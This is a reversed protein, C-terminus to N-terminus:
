WPQWGPGEPKPIGTPWPPAEGTALLNKFWSRKPEPLLEIAEPAVKGAKLAEALAPWDASAVPAGWPGAVAFPVAFRRENDPDRAGDVDPRFLPMARIALTRAPLDFAGAADVRIFNGVLRLTSSRARGNQVDFTGSLRKFSFAAGEGLGQPGSEDAATRALRAPDIGDIAGDILVMNIKGTLTDILAKRTAGSATLDATLNARGTLSDGGFAAGFLAQADFGEGSLTMGVKPVGGDLAATLTGHLIAAYALASDIRAWFRGGGVSFTVDLNQMELGALDASRAKLTLDADFGALGSLDFGVDSWGGSEPLAAFGLWNGLIIRDVTLAGNFAPRSGTLAIALNGSGTREGLAFKLDRLHLTEPSARLAASLSLEGFQRAGPIAAGFFAAIDRTSPASISVGGEFAATKFDAIGDLSGHALDSDFEIRLPVRGGAMLAERNEIVTEIEFIQGRYGVDGSISLAGGERPWRLQVDRAEIVAAGVRIHSDRLRLSGAGFADFPAALTTDGPTFVIEAGELTLGTARAEGSLLPMFAVALLARKATMMPAGDGGEGPGLAVPGLDLALEPTFALRLPGEIRFARGTAASVEAELPAKFGGVPAFFVLAVGGAAILIAGLGLLKWIRNM